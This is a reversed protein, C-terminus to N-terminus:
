RYGMPATGMVRSDVVATNNINGLAQVALDDDEDHLEKVDRKIGDNVPEAVAGGDENMETPLGAIEMLRRMVAPNQTIPAGSMAMSQIFSALDKIDIDGISSHELTPFGNIVFTNLKMLRPIAYRNITQAIIDTISEMSLGFLDKKDAHMGYSGTAGGSGQGLLLFDMLVCAAIRSDYRNIIKDTDMAKTGGATLLQIDYLLNGSEDRDSPLVLSSQEDNRMNAVIHEYMAKVEPESTSPIRAIPIGALDREVGVAEINEIGRKIYWSRYAGRFISKGLPSNKHTSTRFLLLSDWPITVAKYDPPSVQEIAVYNGVEDTIWRYVTEPSRYCIGRWGIRGDDYRSRLHPEPSDGCRRKYVPEFLSCGDRAMMMVESILDTWTQDDMDDMCQELFKAAEVDNPHQSFPRVSWKVQRVIKDITYLIASCTADNDGMERYVEFARRGMLAALQEEFIMGGYAKLGTRGRQRYDIVTTAGASQKIDLRDTPTADPM